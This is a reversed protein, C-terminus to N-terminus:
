LRFHENLIGSVLGSPLLRVVTGDEATMELTSQSGSTWQFSVTGCFGTEVLGFHVCSRWLWKAVGVDNGTHTSCCSRWVVGVKCRQQWDMTSVIASTYDLQWPRVKSRVCAGSLVQHPWFDFAWRCGNRWSNLEQLDLFHMRPWM